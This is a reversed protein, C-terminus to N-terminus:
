PFPVECIFTRGGNCHAAEWSGSTLLAVCVDEPDHTDVQSGLRHYDFPSGDVWSWGPMGPEGFDRLGIYATSYAAFAAVKIALFTNEADDHISAAPADMAECWSVVEPYNAGTCMYYLRTPNVEDDPFVDCPKCEHGPPCIECEYNEPSWEDVLGNGNDDIGNCLEPPLPEGSSSSSESAPPSESSSTDDVPASSSTSPDPATSADVSTSTSGAEDTVYCLGALDGDAYKHWRESSPCDPDPVLCSGEVCRGDGCDADGACVFHGPVICGASSLLLTLAWRVRAM